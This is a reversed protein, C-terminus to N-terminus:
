LLAIVLIRILTTFFDLKGECSLEVCNVFYIESVSPSFMEDFVLHVEPRLTIHALMHAQIMPSVFVEAGSKKYADASERGLLEVIVPIDAHIKELQRNLHLYGLWTRADVDEDTDLWDNALLIIINYKKLSLESVAGANNYDAVIHRTEVRSVPVDKVNMEREKEPIISVIDVQYRERDYRALEKLLQHITNNFGLILIKSRSPAKVGVRPTISVMEEKFYTKSKRSIDDYSDAVFICKDKEKLVMFKDPNLYVKQMSSEIRIIGIITASNLTHFIDGFYVGEQDELSHIYIEAGSSHSFLDKIVYSLYRHRLTQVLLRSLMLSGALVKVNQHAFNAVLELNEPNVLETVLFPPKRKNREAYLDLNVLLNFVGADFRRKQERQESASYIVAAANLIDVRELHEIEMPNGSRLIVKRDSWASGVEAKLDYLVRANVPETLIVIQLSSARFAKLFRRVRQTALLLEKLILPTRNSLGLIVIHKKKRLPTLGSELRAMFRNLRQTMIAVLSGMFLVYGLVTLVTGITRLYVGHDDGLYGPDSLRLFGWWIASEVSKFSNTTFHALLGGAVSIMAITVAVSLIQFFAGRIVYREVQFLIVGYVRWLFKIVRVMM